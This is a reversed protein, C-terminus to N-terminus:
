SKGPLIPSPRSICAIDELPIELVLAWFHGTNPSLARSSRVVEGIEERSFRGLLWRIAQDDGYELVRELVYHERGAGSLRDFDVEWFLPRLFEPLDPM